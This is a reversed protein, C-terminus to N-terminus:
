IRTGEHYKSHSLLPVCTGQNKEKELNVKIKEKIRYNQKDSRKHGQM